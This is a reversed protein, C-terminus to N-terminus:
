RGQSDANDREMKALEYEVEEVEKKIEAKNDDDIVGDDLLLRGHDLGERIVPKASELEVKCEQLLLHLAAHSVSKCSLKNILIINRNVGNDNVM